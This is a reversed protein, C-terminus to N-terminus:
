WKFHLLVTVRTDMIDHDADTLAFGYAAGLEVHPSFRVAAGVEAWVVASGAVDASGLNAYDLGGVRLPVRDGDSLYHLGHIEIMPAFGDFLEYDAHASWQLVHNGDGSDLPARWSVNGMLHLDDFGQAFSLFPSLEQVNGQLVDDKGSESMYRFGGAAVTDSEQNAYFVYKLGLGLDNWGEDEPFAGANLFSYGDKTAIFGLRETIAIRAQVAIVNLDGGAIQSGAPFDHHLYLFSVRSDNIPSEFYLPNGVPTYFGEFGRLGSLFGPWFIESDEFARDSTLLYGVQPDLKLDPDVATGVEEAPPEPQAAVSGLGV